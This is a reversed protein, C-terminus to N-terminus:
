ERGVEKVAVGAAALAQRVQQEVLLRDGLNSRAFLVPLKVVPPSSRALIADITAGINTRGSGDIITRAADLALREDGSLWGRPQPPARFRPVVTYPGAQDSTEANWQEAEWEAAERITCVAVAGAEDNEVAWCDPEGEGGGSAPVAPQPPARYLPVIRVEGDSFKECEEFSNFAMCVNKMGFKGVAAFWTATVAEGSAAQTQGYKPNGAMSGVGDAGPSISSVDFSTVTAAPAAKLVTEAATPALAQAAINHAQWAAGNVAARTYDLSKIEALATEATAARCAVSELQAELSAVRAKAKKWEDFNFTAASALSSNNAELEDVRARLKDAESVASAFRDATLAQTIKAARLKYYEEQYADRERIAADREETLRLIRGRYADRAGEWAVSEALAEAADYVVRVSELAYKPRLCYAFDWRAASYEGWHAIELTVLDRRLGAPAPIESAEARYAKLQEDRKTDKTAMGDGKNEHDVASSASVSKPIMAIAEELTPLPRDRGDEAARLAADRAIDHCRAHTM